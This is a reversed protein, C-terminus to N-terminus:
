YMKPAETFLKKNQKKWYYRFYFNGKIKGQNDKFDIGSLTEALLEEEAALARAMIDNLRDPDASSPDLGTLESDVQKEIRDREQLYGALDKVRNELAARHLKERQLWFHCADEADDESFSFKEGDIMWYPKYLAICPTSGGTILYTSGNDKLEAVYSGTTHDGFIFGAHMCVSKLSHRTFQKGELADEHTRLIRKMTGSTIQGKEEQLICSSISERQQSGSFRTVLPDTYCRAFNFDAEGKCWGKDVAHKVLDPHSRDYRSGISLRNSISRVSEVKEAAWYPGATELVWASTPDAILFSNHYYFKKEYGCNGGQGYRELLYILLDLAAESSRCRELALRLMDMGLLSEPGQKVRTFAAENGINLGYENCGMEAGWMWSPKLLLVEHTEEVQDIEIYTCRLRSGTPYQKRPVRITLLPENPQRDSNKAFIVSGDLTSNGLAVMTDCM